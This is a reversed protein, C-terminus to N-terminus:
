FLDSDGMTYYLRSRMEAVTEGRGFPVCMLSLDQPEPRRELGLGTLLRDLWPPRPPCWTEVAALPFLHTLHRLALELVGAHRPDLLLDGLLFRDERIRFVLWGALASWKRIAIVSYAPDPSQLYRWSVYRADRRVLFGHHPALREFLADWEATTERVLEFRVG